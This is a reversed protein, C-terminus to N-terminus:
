WYANNLVPPLRLLVRLNLAMDQLTGNGSVQLLFYREILELTKADAVDGTIVLVNALLSPRISQIRPVVEEAQAHACRLDLLVADFEERRIIDIAQRGSDAVDAECSLDSLLTLLANCVSPVDEIILVKRLPPQRMKM